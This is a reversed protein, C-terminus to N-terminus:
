DLKIGTAKIVKGWKELEASVRRQLDEPSGVPEREFGMEELRKRTEPAAAITALASNLRQVIAAPTGAPVWLAIWSSDDLGPYGSEAVTPVNPLAFYRKDGTVAIAKVASAKIQGIASSAVVTGIDVQRGMVAALAPATGAYPVHQGSSRAQVELLYALHMHPGSGAGGTAYNLKATRSYNLVDSLKSGPFDPRAIIVNSTTAMLGVGALDRLADYGANPNLRQVSALTGSSVMATYGDPEAKIVQRTALIGAAGPRNEVVAPQGLVSQMREAFLRAVVDAPGGPAFGVLFRIPRNPYGDGQALAPTAVAGALVAALLMTKIPLNMTM